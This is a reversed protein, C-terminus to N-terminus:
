KMVNESQRGVDGLEIKVFSGRRTLREVVSLNKNRKVDGHGIVFSHHRASRKESVSLTKRGSEIM